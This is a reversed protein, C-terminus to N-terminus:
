ASAQNPVLERRNQRDLLQDIPEPALWPAEIRCDDADFEPLLEDFADESKRNRSRLRMLAHNVVIRHLWTKLSSREEFSAISQFASVFADQLCDKTEDPDGLIRHAVHYLPGGLQSVLMDFAEDTGTRLGVVLEHEGSTQPDKQHGM